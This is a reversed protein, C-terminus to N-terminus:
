KSFTGPLYHACAFSNNIKKVAVVCILISFTNYLIGDYVSM